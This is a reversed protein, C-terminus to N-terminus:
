LFVHQGNDIEFGLARHPHSWTAGGLRRRAELLTVRAGGDACALAAQLGALGGGVVLVHPKM